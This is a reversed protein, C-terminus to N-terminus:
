EAGMFDIEHGPQLAVYAKKWDSRRGSSGRFKKRKGKLRATRVAAVKVEFLLEVAQKIEKKDADLLVKLVVQNHKEGVLTSKESVVPALIIKTLREENM